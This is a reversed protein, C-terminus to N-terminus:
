DLAYSVNCFGMLFGQPTSQCLEVVDRNLATSLVRTKTALRMMGTADLNEFQTQRVDSMDFDFQLVPAVSEHGFRDVLKTKAVFRVCDPSGLSFKSSQMRELFDQAHWLATTSTSGIFAGGVTFTNIAYNKGDDAVYSLTGLGKDTVFEFVNKPRMEDLIILVTTGLLSAPAVLAMQKKTLRQTM